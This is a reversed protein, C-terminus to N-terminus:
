EEGIGFDFLSASDVANDIVEQPVVIEFDGNIESMTVNVSVNALALEGNEDLMEMTMTFLIREAEFSEKNISYEMYFEHIKLSEDVGDVYGILNNMYDDQYTDGKVLYYKGDESESLTMSSAMVENTMQSAYFQDDVDVLAEQSDLIEDEEDAIIWQDGTLFMKTYSRTGVKYSSLNMFSEVMAAAMLDDQSATSEDLNMKGSMSMFYDDQDMDMKIMFSMDMEDSPSKIMMDYDMTIKVKTLDAMAEDTKEFISIIKNYEEYDTIIVGKQEGDWLVKKNFAESVFRAPVYTRNNTYVFPAVDLKVTEGNIVADLSGVKLYVTTDDKILTVSQEDGNWIIHEDDNEIGIRTVVARLPLMTRDNVILPVDDYVGNEGDIIIKLEEFEVVNEEALVEVNGLSFIMTISLILGLVKRM